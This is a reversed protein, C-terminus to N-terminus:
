DEAIFGFGMPSTNEPHEELVELVYSGLDVDLRETGLRVMRGGATQFGISRFRYVGPPTVPAIKGRLEYVSVRTNDARYRGIQARPELLSEEEKSWSLVVEPAGIRDGEEETQARSFFAGIWILNTSHNVQIRARIEDGIMAYGRTPDESM